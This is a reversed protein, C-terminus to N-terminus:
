GPWHPCCIGDDALASTRSGPRPSRAPSGPDTRLHDYLRWSRLKERLTVLEPARNPDAVVDLMSEHPRAAKTLTEWGHDGRTRVHPGRRETLVASPRAVPGAWM